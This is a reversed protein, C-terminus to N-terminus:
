RAVRHWTRATRSQIGRFAISADAVTADREGKVGHVAWAWIAPPVNPAKMDIEDVKARVGAVAPHEIPDGRRLMLDLERVLNGYERSAARHREARSEYQLYGRLAALAAAVITIAGAVIRIWLAVQTGQLSAFVSAGVVAGLVATFGGLAFNRWGYVDTTRSHAVSATRLEWRWDEILDHM